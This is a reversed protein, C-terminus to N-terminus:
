KCGAAFIAEESDDDAAFAQRSQRPRYETRSPGCAARFMDGETEAMHRRLQDLDDEDIADMVVMGRDTSTGSESISDLFAKDHQLLGM